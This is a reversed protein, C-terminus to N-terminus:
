ALIEDMVQLFQKVDIPKTLYARVGAALFHEIQHPTADASIMVVPIEQTQPDAQLLSLMQSGHLDPLNLDLLILDPRHERALDLGLRGQMATLLRIAPRHTLIQEVLQLNSLNDEVYLVTKAKGPAHTPPLLGSGMRHLQGVPGEVVPLEVWFTSGQGVVSEAGIRGGMVEMLRKSLALGLGTGEVDSQETDLRDFPTFLRGMKEAPIGSGTDSVLVRLRDGVEECAVAVRGGAQNYKIANALLNLLVQKIRQRDARVHRDCRTLEDAQLRIDRQAALPQAVDLVEQLVESVQVPEPSLSLRGSEVRAIDLVENILDLLHRGAKLIHRLGEHQLPNLDDMRLVQAFGLIANLPTRLEHSMRSLFESKAQNAREAQEKAHQLERNAVALQTTREAVRQELEANFQRLAAQAEQLDNVLRIRDLTVTVHSAMASFFELQAQTPVRV